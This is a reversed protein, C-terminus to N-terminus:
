ALDFKPLVQLFRGLVESSPADIIEALPDTNSDFPFGMRWDSFLRNSLKSAEHLLVLDDNHTDVCVSKAAQLATRSDGEVYHCFRQGDFLLVGTIGNQYNNLRSTRIIRPVADGRATSCFLSTYIM